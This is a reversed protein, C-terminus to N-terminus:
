ATARQPFEDWTRGDLERGGWVGDIKRTGGHQKHFLAVGSAQCQDRISRVWDLDCPRADKLASEGGTIVWDIRATWLPHMQMFRERNGHPQPQGLFPDGNPQLWPLKLRGLLPEASVFRVAAPVNMLAPIREDAADQNEASTGLWVNSYGAGWDAPLHAAIREPRKTLILYTFQPTRRVVDWAEARWEDAEAIFWDSWSCTFIRAGPQVKGSKAWKRPADFTTKSRVVVNPDKGYHPMDRFMYCNKCGASVKHCGQWPNWTSDCWQIGTKEGM